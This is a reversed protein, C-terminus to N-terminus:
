NKGYQKKVKGVLLPSGRRTAVCEGPFLSSKFVCAFAGELQAIAKEVLQRFSDKPNQSRFDYTTLTKYFQILTACIFAIERINNLSWLSEGRLKIFVFFLFINEALKLRPLTFTQLAECPYPEASRM